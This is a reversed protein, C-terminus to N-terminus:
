NWNMWHYELHMLHMKVLKAHNLNNGIANSEHLESKLFETCRTVVDSLEIMDASILIDQVNTQSIHISGTYIFEILAQFDFYTLIRAFSTIELYYNIELFQSTKGFSFDFKLKLIILNWTRKFNYNFITLVFINARLRDTKEKIRHVGRNRQITLEM